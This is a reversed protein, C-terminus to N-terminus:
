NSPSAYFVLQWFDARPNDRLAASSQFLRGLDVAPFTNKLAEVYKASMMADLDNYFNFCVVSYGTKTGYPLMLNFCGWQSIDGGLRIREKHIIRFTDTEMKLYDGFKDPKPQMFDSVIYKSQFGDKSSSDALALGTYIEEKILKRIENSQFHYDAFFKVDKNPNTKKLASDFTYPSDFINKFRNVITITMCDYDTNSGSPSLLKYFYWGSIAGANIRAQQVKADVNMMMRHFEDEKGPVVKYYSICYYTSPRQASAIGPCIICALLLARVIFNACVSYIFRDLPNNTEEDMKNQNLRLQDSIQFKIKNQNKSNSM